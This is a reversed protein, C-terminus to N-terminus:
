VVLKLASVMGMVLCLSASVLRLTNKPLRNRLGIGLTMALVGKTLLAM